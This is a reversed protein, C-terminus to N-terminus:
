SARLPGILGRLAKYPGRLGSLLRKKEVPKCRDKFGLSSVDVTAAGAILNRLQCSVLKTFFAVLVYRNLFIGSTLSFGSQEPSFM